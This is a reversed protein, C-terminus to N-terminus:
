HRADRLRLYVAALDHKLDQRDRGAVHVADSRTSHFSQTSLSETSRTLGHLGDAATVSCAPSWRCGSSSSLSAWTASRRYACSRLADCVAPASRSVPIAVRCISTMGHYAYNRESTIPM